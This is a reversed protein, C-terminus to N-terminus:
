SLCNQATEFAQECMCTLFGHRPCTKCLRELARLQTQCARRVRMALLESSIGVKKAVTDFSQGLLDVQWILWSCDKPLTPLVRYLCASVAREVDDPFMPLPEDIWAEHGVAGALRQKYSALTRRLAQILGGKFGRCERAAWDSRVAERYFDRVVDEGAAMTGTHKIAVRLFQDHSEKLAALLAGDLSYSPHKVSTMSANASVRKGNKDQSIQGADCSYSSM